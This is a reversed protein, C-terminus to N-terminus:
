RAPDLDRRRVLRVRFAPSPAWHQFGSFERPGDSTVVCDYEALETVFLRAVVGTVHDGLCPRPPLGFPSYEARTYRRGLFRDPDFRDPDPFVDPSRHSERVCVRVLWGKPILFGGFPVDAHAGRNVNESQELRLCESVIRSALPEGDGAAAPAAAAEQRLRHIWAPHESLIKVVWHLLGIVDNAGTHLIYILNRVVTADDLAGPLARQLEFLFARPPPGEGPEPRQARARERHVVGAIEQLAAEIARPSAGAPNRFDIVPYLARLREAADSEPAIGFFLRTFAGFVLDELYPLAAV